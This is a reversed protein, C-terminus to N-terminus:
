VAVDTVTADSPAVPADLGTERRYHQYGLQGRTIIVLLVAFAMWIVFPLQSVVGVKPFSPFLTILLTSTNISAHLLIVLLLSGRTNNFVWTFIIAFAIVAITFGGFGILFGSFGSATGNYGPLFVFIPLHWLAWLVALILTGMLPGSRQQLRPLAFGRWGPEEGFPGGAFFIAVYTVLYTQLFSITPAHFDAFGGAFLLVGLFLLVPIVLLAFIYWPLGVRWRVYRRLLTVVGTKGETIAAMIFAALTPGFITMLIGDFPFPVHLPFVIALEWFWSFVFALIFFSSLPYSRMLQVLSNTSATAPRASNLNEM